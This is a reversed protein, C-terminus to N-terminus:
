KGKAAPRKKAKGTAAAPAQGGELLADLVARKIRWSGGVKVGPLKLPAPSEVLFVTSAPIV